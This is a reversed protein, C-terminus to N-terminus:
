YEVTTRIVRIQIYSLIVLFGLLVTSMAAGTGMEFFQFSTRYIWMVITTTEHAPGGGTMVFWFDFGLYSGIVSVTLALAFTPRLLPLMIFRFRHWATAGDIAAAEYLDGPIAQMGALLLVMSFGATKWVIMIIVSMMSKNGGTLWGMSRSTIGLSTFLYDALGIESSFIWRFVLGATVFGVVVPVFYITRFSVVGRLRQDVLLALTMATIFIAPTVVLTYKTTFLFSYSFVEDRFAGLYNKFGVLPREGLPPWDHLSIWLTMVLPLLVFVANLLVAPSIFLYGALAHRARRSSWRVGVQPRIDVTQEM